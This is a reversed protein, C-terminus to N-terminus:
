VEVEASWEQVAGAQGADDLLEAAKRERGRARVRGRALHVAGAREPEGVGFGGAAGRCTV